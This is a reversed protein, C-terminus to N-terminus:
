EVCISLWGLLHSCPVIYPRWHLPHRWALRAEPLFKHTQHSRCVSNRRHWLRLLTGNDLIGLALNLATRSPRRLCTRCSNRIGLWLLQHRYVKSPRPTPLYRDSHHSDTRQHRWRGHRSDFTWGVLSHHLGSNRRRYKWRPVPRGFTRLSRSTWFRDLSLRSITPMRREGPPLFNRDLVRPHGLCSPIYYHVLVTLSHPSRYIPRVPLATAVISADLAIMFSVVALSYVIM